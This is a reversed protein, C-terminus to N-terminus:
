RAAVRTLARALQAPLTLAKDVILFNREGFIKKVYTGAGKDLTLCFVTIGKANLAHVAQAADEVLYDKDAVDIDSPEGDTVLLLIRKEAVQTTLRTGAHRLAAGMRTSLAGQQRKLLQRRADDYPEDFEKLRLYHVKARGDSSFGDIALRDYDLDISQALLDAAQKEVDLVSTFGTVRDNTSESLDMLLLIAAHRRRKGPRQFIRPDPTIGARWSIRSEVAANLDLSEGEQQRRLRIARDLTRARTDLSVGSSRRRVSNGDSHAAVDRAARDLVTAWADRLVDERYDWEPYEYRRGPDPEVPAIAMATDAQQDTADIQVSTRALSEEPPTDPPADSEFEWLFSNDDRYAPQVVYLETVFRVRMQGLDNGLINGVEVFPEPDDLGASAAAEFLARGKNVWHNPDDYHPDHLARALRASLSAFTLENKEGSATHFRGWLARLGPYHRAALREVRADEILSRVALLLPKKKGVPQHRPSYQLHALAHAVAARYINGRAAGDWALYHDPLLLTGESIVPRLAPSNLKRQRRAGLVLERQGFGAAYLQLAHRAREFSTGQSEAVMATAAQPDELRFYAQLKDPYQAYLRMGTLIWRRLGGVDLSNLLFGLHSALAAESGPAVEATETLLAALEDATAADRLRTAAATFAASLAPHLLSAADAVDSRDTIDSTSTPM